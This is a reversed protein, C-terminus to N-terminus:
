EFVDQRVEIIQGTNRDVLLADPGYQVWVAGSPPQALGLAIFNTLWFTSAFWYDRPLWGGRYWRRAPWRDWGPRGWGRGNWGPRNWPRNQWGPRRGNDWGPRGPRNNDWGPRGPRNVDGGGPRGPRNVNGGGGPRGPRNVNGGGPRGPRNVNAGGGPRGPRNVNSGGGPRGPRAGSNPRRNPRNANNGGGRNPRANRGGRRPEDRAFQQGPAANREITARDNQIQLARDSQRADQKPTESRPAAAAGGALALMSVFAAALFSTTTPM